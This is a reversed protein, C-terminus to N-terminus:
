LTVSIVSSIVFGVEDVHGALLVRPRDTSGRSTFTVTGLKDSVIEDSYPEMFKRCISSVDREFGSPGFGEMIEKMLNLAKDDLM